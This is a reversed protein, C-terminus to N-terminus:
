YEKFIEDTKDMMDVFVEIDGEAPQGLISFWKDEDGNCLSDILQQLISKMTLKCENKIMDVQQKQFKNKYQNMIANLSTNVQVNVYQNSVNEIIQTHILERDDANM